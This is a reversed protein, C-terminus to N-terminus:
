KMTKGESIREVATAIRRARTQPRKAQTIWNVYQWKRAPSLAAWHKGAHKTAKPSKKM